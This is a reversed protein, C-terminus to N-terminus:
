LDRKFAAFCDNDRFDQLPGPILLFIFLINM